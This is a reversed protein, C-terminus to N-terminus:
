ASVYGRLRQVPVIDEFNPISAILELARQQRELPTAALWRQCHAVIEDGNAGFEAMPQQDRATESIVLKGTSLAPLIRLQELTANPYYHLNLVLRARKILDAKQRGFVRDSTEVHIGVARLKDITSRRRENLVGLFVVDLEESEIPTLETKVVGLPVHRAKIGHQELFPLASASFEWVEVAGKMKEIYAPTFFSSTEQELQVAIYPNLPAPVRDSLLGFMIYFSDPPLPLTTVVSVDFGKQRLVYELANVYEDFYVCLNYIVIPLM